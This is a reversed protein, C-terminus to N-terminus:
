VQTRRSKLFDEDAGEPAATIESYARMILQRVSPALQSWLKHMSGDHARIAFEAGDTNVVQAVSTQALEYLLQIPDSKARACAAKEELPKLLKLGVTAITGFDDTQADRLMIQPIDFLELPRRAGSHDPVPPKTASM